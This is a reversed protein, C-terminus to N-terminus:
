GPDAVLRQLRRRSRDHRHRSADDRQLLERDPLPLLRGPRRRHRRRGRQGQGHVPRKHGRQRLRRRGARHREGDAGPQRGHREHRLRHDRQRGLRDGDRPHRVPRRRGRGARDEHELEGPRDDVDLHRAARGALRRGPESRRRRDDRRARRHRRHRREHGPEHDLRDARHQRRPREHDSGLSGLQAANDVAVVDLDYLGDAVADPGTKTNWSASSIPTWPGGSGATSYRFTTSAVGTGGVDSSTSSLSVTGSLHSGPNTM